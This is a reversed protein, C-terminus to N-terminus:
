WSNNKAQNLVYNAVNKIEDDELKASFPPMGNKGNTVQLIIAEVTDKSNAQLAELKLNKDSVISNGGGIHCASCNAGFLSEGAELDIATDEAFVLQVSIFLISVLSLFLFKLLRM